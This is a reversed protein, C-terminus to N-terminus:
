LLFHSSVRKDQSQCDPGQFTTTPLVQFQRDNLCHSWDRDWWGSAIFDQCTMQKRDEM